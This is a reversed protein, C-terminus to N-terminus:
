LFCQNICAQLEDSISKCDGVLESLEDEGMFDALPFSQPTSIFKDLSNKLLLIDQKEASIAINKRYETSEDLDSIAVQKHRLCELLIVSLDIVVDVAIDFHPEYGEGAEFYLDAEEIEGSELAVDLHIDEFIQRLSFVEHTSMGFYDLLLLSDDCGGVYNGWWKGIYLNSM